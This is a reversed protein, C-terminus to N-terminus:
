TYVKDSKVNCSFIHLNVCVKAFVYVIILVHHINISKCIKTIYFFLLSIQKLNASIKLCSKTYLYLLNCFDDVNSQCNFQDDENGM